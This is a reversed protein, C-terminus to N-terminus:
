IFALVFVALASIVAAAFAIRTWYEYAATQPDSDEFEWYIDDTDIRRSRIRLWVYAAASILFVPLSIIILITRM